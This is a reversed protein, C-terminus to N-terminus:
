RCLTTSGSASNCLGERRWCLRADLTLGVKVEQGPKFCNTMPHGAHPNPYYVGKQAGESGSQFGGPAPTAACEVYAYVCVQGQHDHYMPRVSFGSGCKGGTSTEGNASTGGSVGPLKGMLKGSASQFFAANAAFSYQLAVQDSPSKLPAKGSTGDKSSGNFKFHCVSGSCSKSDAGKDLKVNYGFMQAGGSGSSTDSQIQRSSQNPDCSGAHAGISFLFLAAAIGM